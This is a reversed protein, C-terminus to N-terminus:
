DDEPERVEVLPEEDIEDEPVFTIRMGWGAYTRLLRGFERLSLERGDIIVTAQGYFGGDCILCRLM